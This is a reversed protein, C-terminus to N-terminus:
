PPKTLGRQLGADGSISGPDNRPSCAHISQLGHLGKDGHHFASAEGRGRALEINRQRHDAADDGVEFGVQAHPQERAGRPQHTGRVGAGGVVLVAPADQGLDVLGFQGGRACVQRRAPLQRDRRRHQEPATEDRRDHDLVQPAVRLHVDVAQKDVADDIEHVLADVDADANAVQGGGRELRHRDAM